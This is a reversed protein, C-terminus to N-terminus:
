QQGSSDYKITAYDSFGDSRSSEGTVYVNGSGDVAMGSAADVGNGPGNYRAVWQQQGSEDYKITAYDTGTGEGASSGTVYVNGSGDVTIGTPEEDFVGSYSAVWAQRVGGIYGAPVRSSDRLQSDLRHIHDGTLTRQTTEAFLALFAAVCLSAVGFLVRLNLFASRSTSRKKM